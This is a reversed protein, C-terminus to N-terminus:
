YIAPSQYVVAPHRPVRPAKGWALLWGFPARQQRQRVIQYRANVEGAILARKYIRVLMLLGNLQRSTNYNLGFWVPNANVSITTAINVPTAASQGDVYLRLDSGDYTGTIHAYDGNTLANTATISRSAGDGIYFYPKGAGGLTGDGLRLYYGTTWSTQGKDVIGNIYPTGTAITDIRIFAELTIVATIDLHPADPVSGYEGAADVLLGPGFVGSSWTANTVSGISGYGGYDPLVLGTVPDFRWEGVLGQDLPDTRGQGPSPSILHHTYGRVLGNPM